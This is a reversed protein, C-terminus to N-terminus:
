GGSSENHIKMRSPHADAECVMGYCEQACFSRQDPDCNDWVIGSDPKKCLWNLGPDCDKPNVNCQATALNLSTTLCLLTPALFKM